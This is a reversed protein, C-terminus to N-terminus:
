VALELLRQRVAVLDARTLDRPRGPESSGNRLLYAPHFIPMCDRGEFALWHGRLQSIPGKIALVAQLATAGVLVLV